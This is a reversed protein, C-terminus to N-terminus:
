LLGYFFIQSVKSGARTESSVNQLFQAAKWCLFCAPGEGRCKRSDIDGAVIQPSLSPCNPADQMWSTPDCVNLWLLQQHVSVGDRNLKAHQLVTHTYIIYIIYHIHKEALSKSWVSQRTNAFTLSPCSCDPHYATELHGSWVPSRHDVQDVKDDVRMIFTSLM